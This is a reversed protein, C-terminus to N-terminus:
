PAPTLLLEIAAKSVAYSTKFFTLPLAGEKNNANSGFTIDYAGQTDANNPDRTLATLELGLGAGLVEFASNGGTGKFNNEYIVVYKGDKGAQLDAKTEPSLDFIKFLFIHDFVNAYTQKVLAFSPANSNNRGEVYYAQKGTALTIEELIM